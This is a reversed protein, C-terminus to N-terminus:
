GHDVDLHHIEGFAVRVVGEGTELLLGGTEDLDAAVGRATDGGVTTAVVRRGLTASVTRWRDLIAEPSGEIMPRFRQIFGTLLAEEDVDGIGGAGPVDEPPDLNVGVGLVVHGIRGDTIQAEGLIGGVKSEGAMLDNPWKCRIELGSLDSAAEAMAAGAALSILGVSEPEQPPRLVVSFMLASGSRDRWTRGRRGRGATQHGAAVLTWAPTGEAAMALATANTSETVEDWRVPATLGAARLTRQLADENLV